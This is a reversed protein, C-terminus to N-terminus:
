RPRPLNDIFQKMRDYHSGKWYIRDCAPCLQFDNFLIDVTPPIRPRVEQKGARLLLTNCEMCRTFPSFNKHLDFRELVEILQLRPDDEQVCYKRTLEERQLLKRDKSLLARKEDRSQMMLANDDADKNFASDFGLM